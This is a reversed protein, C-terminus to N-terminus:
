KKKRKVAPRSLKFDGGIQAFFRLTPATELMLSESFADGRIAVGRVM